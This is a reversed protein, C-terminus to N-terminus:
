QGDASASVGESHACRLRGCNRASRFVSVGRRPGTHGAHLSGACRTRSRQHRDTRVRFLIGAARVHVGTPAGDRCGLRTGINVGVALDIVNARMLIAKFDKM